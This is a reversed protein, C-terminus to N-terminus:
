NCSFAIFASGTPGTGPTMYLLTGVGVNASATMSCSSTGNSSTCSLITSGVTPTTSGAAVTATNLNFTTAGSMAPFVTMSPKCATPAVTLVTSSFGGVTAQISSSVSWNPAATTHATLAYLIGVPAGGSGAAGAPGTAGTAGSTGAPGPSGPFGMPGTPGAVTSAAGTAGTAGAPGLPGSAGTVGAPGLPGSPGSAGVPGLPGSAGTAGAPGLPGSPGSAGVPGLPGSAGTAGAPGLPGSLGTVGTPGAVTSAAGTAGAPGSPGLPGTAGTPGAATSAAGTAGTPGTAGTLGSPGTAGTAGAAGGNSLVITLVAPHSTTTTEKTDFQLNAGGLAGAIMFGNNSTPTGVWGQVASTADVTIFSFVTSAAVATAVVSGAAPPAIGNVGSETWPTSPSVTDINITGSTGVHDLFLTLTAKQIQDPTVGAPLSSLDFQVLGVAASPGGVTFSTGPGYNTASGPVYFTDASPTLTQAAGLVPLLVILGFVVLGGQILGTKKM